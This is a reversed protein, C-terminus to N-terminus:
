YNLCHWSRPNRELLRIVIRLQQEIAYVFIEEEAAIKRPNQSTKIAELQYISLSIPWSYIKILDSQKNTVAFLRSEICTEIGM